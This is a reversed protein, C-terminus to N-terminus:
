PCAPNRETGQCVADTEKKLNSPNCVTITLNGATRQYSPGNIPCVLYNVGNPYYSRFTKLAASDFENPNWKCEIADIRERNLALVFDIERGSTDRWFNIKYDPYYALLTELVLHEWLFGYDSPRLPDWGKCFCVFGSDFAYGKSMKVLEKHGGEFFPRVMILAQTIELARLHSEVTPRSIGLVSAIKAIEILGGSQKIIYEFLLNFKDIDRFAFLKQIDRAYFSDMWERYFATSKQELLLAPPLGGHFLRKLLTTNDFATLEDWLVPLLHVTRKRGTLTDRFKKVALLSSSGTALLKLHPFLDAGIKLLRAPDPLQHIEDFVILPYKCNRYFLEPDKTIDSSIPLDCNIYVQNDGLGKTLTTKGSRRVGALWVIPAETWSNIIRQSWFNRNVM